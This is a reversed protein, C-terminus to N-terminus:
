APEAGAARVERVLRAMDAADYRQDCPLMLIESALRHSETFSAPVASDIPWHIPPFIEQAILHRRVRDRNRLRIPFGMPVVGEPLETFMAVDPLGDLLVRYNARRRSCMGVYDVGELLLAETLESMRAPGLPAAPETRCFMDYWRREGGHRDFDARLRSAQLAELWWRTPAPPLPGAPLPSGRQSVLVGGDPVGLFKRPSVVVYHALPNFADNLMAQCADEIVWAGRARVAEGAASWTDFGFYSIFVVLDGPEVEGIWTTDELALTASVPYLRQEVAGAPMAALVVDCLYAPFWVRRPALHHLLLAFAGRASALRVSPLGLFAPPPADHVPRPGEFGELGFMGGIVRM